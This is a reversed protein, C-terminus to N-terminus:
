KKEKFYYRKADLIVCTILFILTGIVTSIIDVQGMLVYNGILYFGEFFLTVKWYKLFTQLLM